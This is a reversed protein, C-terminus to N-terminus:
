ESYVYVKVNTVTLVNTPYVKGPVVLRPLQDINIEFPYNNRVQTRRLLNNTWEYRIIFGTRDYRNEALRYGNLGSVLAVFATFLILKIMYKM